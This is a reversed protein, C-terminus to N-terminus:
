KTCSQPLEMASAISNGCDEVLGDIYTTKELDYTILQQTMGRPDLVVLVFGDIM